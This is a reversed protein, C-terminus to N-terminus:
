GSAQKYVADLDRKLDADAGVGEVANRGPCSSTIAKM